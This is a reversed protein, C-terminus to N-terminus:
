SLGYLPDLKARLQRVLPEHSLPAGTAEQVLEAATYRQGHRHVHDRLWALLTEFQGQRMIADVGGLQDSATAFLQAAYLNGLAYTPFYGILGASWHIDQLVGDADNPPTIGLTKQYHENWAGPLDAVSLDGEVLATELEFRVLIHLNYTAEDADVRILSPRVDNVAFHFDDLSMGDLAPAYAKQAAGYFFEWFPRSRGVLNEWLRSQSEHIGLSVAEGAPLGFQEPALGQEYTGHGAEHLIGFLVHTFRQEDYRTTIRVDHPGVTSCFPHATADLRGRQFDFGIREAVMRGFAEHVPRPFSRELREVPPTRGSQTISEILPLVADRLGRLVPGVTSKREYPEYDDLLADYPSEEYGLADAQERKLRVIAALQPALEGFDDGARARVWAQQGIVCQRSLEEVLRRPLKVKKDYRRKLWRIAVASAGERALRSAALENLWQGVRPDTQREHLLGALCAIQEARYPGAAAPIMTREDWGLLSEVSSLVAVQRADDVLQEYADRTSETM